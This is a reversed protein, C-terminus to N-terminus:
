DASLVAGSAADVTVTHATGDVTVAATWRPAATTGGLQMSALTSGTVAGTAIRAAEVVDVAAGIVALNTSRTDADVSKPFPGSVVRGASASVVSQTESGDAASVVVTWTDGDSSSFSVVTGGGAAAVGQESVAAVDVAPTSESGSSGTGSGSSGTGSGSSGTGSGSSGTGDGADSGGSDSGSDSGSDNGSDSATASPATLTPASSDSPTASRTHSPSPEPGGDGSCGATALAAGVVLASLPLLRSPRVSRDRFM